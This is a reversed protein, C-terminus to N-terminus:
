SSRVSSPWSSSEKAAPSSWQASGAGRVTGAGHVVDHQVDVVVLVVDEEEPALELLPARVDLQVSGHGAAVADLRRDVVLRGQDQEVVAKGVGVALLDQELEGGSWGGGRDRDDDEAAVRVRHGDIFEERRASRIEQDLREVNVLEQCDDSTVEVSRRPGGSCVAKWPRGRCGARCATRSCAVAARASRGGAGSTFWWTPVTLVAGGCARVLGDRRGARAPRHLVSGTPWSTQCM